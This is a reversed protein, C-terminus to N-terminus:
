GKEAAKAVVSTQPLVFAERVPRLDTGRKGGKPFLPRVNSAYQNRNVQLWEVVDQPAERQGSEWRSVTSREVGLAQAVEAASHRTLQRALNFENGM